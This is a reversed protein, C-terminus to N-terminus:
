SKGVLLMGERGRTKEGAAPRAARAEFQDVHVSVRGGAYGKGFQGSGTGGRRAMIAPIESADGGAGSHTTHITTISPPSHVCMHENYLSLYLVPVACDCLCALACACCGVCCLLWCLADFARQQTGCTRWAGDAVLAVHRKSGHAHMDCVVCLAGGPRSVWHAQQQQQQQLDQQQLRQRLVLVGAALLMM